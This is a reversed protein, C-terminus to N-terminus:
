STIVHMGNLTDAVEHSEISSQHNAVFCRTGVAANTHPDKPLSEEGRLDWYQLRAQMVSAMVTAVVAEGSAPRPLLRPRVVFLNALSEATRTTAVLTM